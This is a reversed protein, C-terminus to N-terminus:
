RDTDKPNSPSAPAFLLLDARVWLALCVLLVGPGLVASLAPQPTTLAGVLGVLTAVIAPVRSALVAARFADPWRSPWGPFSTRGAASGFKGAAMLLGASAALIPQGFGMMAAGFVVSGIGSVFDGRRNLSANPPAGKAWARHYIEGSWFFVGTAVTLAMAAVNGALTEVAAAALADNGSVGRGAMELAPLAISTALCLANGVNYCGGPGALRAALATGLGARAGLTTTHTGSM